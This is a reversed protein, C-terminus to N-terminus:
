SRTPAPSRTATTPSGPWPPAAVPCGCARSTTSAPTRARSPRFTRRPEGSAPPARRGARTTTSTTPSSPTAGPIARVADVSDSAGTLNEVVVLNSTSAGSVTLARVRAGSAGGPQPAALAVVFGDGGNPEIDAVSADDPLNPGALVVPPQGEAPQRWLQPNGSADSVMV